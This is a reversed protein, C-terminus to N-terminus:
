ELRPERALSLAAGENTEWEGCGKYLQIMAIQASVDFMDKM